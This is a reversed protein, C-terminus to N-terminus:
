KETIALLPRYLATMDDGRSVPEGTVTLTGAVLALMPGPYSQRPIASSIQFVM